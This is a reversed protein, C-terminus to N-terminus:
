NVVRSTNDHASREAKEAALLLQNTAVVIKSKKERTRVRMKKRATVKMWLNQM